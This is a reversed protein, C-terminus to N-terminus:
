FDTLKNQGPKKAPAPSVSPAEKKEEAKKEEKKKPRGRANLVSKFDSPSALALGGVIKKMKEEKRKSSWFFAQDRTNATMLGFMRGLKARGARGRRQIHRIESAVPEYFIVNDVSPIDLGEEGISTAVLIDFLGERFEALTKQQDKATVGEKKGMFSKARLGASALAHVLVAVQDRYQCFVISKEGAPRSKVLAVLKELKPHEAAGKLKEVMAMFKPNHLLRVQAKSPERERVRQVFRQVAEVGQTELLEQVHVLSFLTAHHSLASFRLSSNSNLIRMRMESLAKKSAFQGVFGMKRLTETQAGILDQLVAKAELLAPTLEVRIWEIELPKVYPKVDADEATRIQVHRIGLANLIDTIKKRDGGPSATLGLVLSGHKQAATAVFTYAYKGVSRHCEDFIVLSFDFTLRGAELDNAITQPTSIVLRVPSLYLPPRKSAAILGSVSVIEEPKLTLWERCVKEHQAALPRTPALFLVRGGADLKAAAVLIAVLTKGLGTPLVVLTSGNKLVADSISSQYLRPLPAAPSLLSSPM